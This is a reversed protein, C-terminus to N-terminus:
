KRELIKDVVEKKYMTLLEEEVQRDEMIVDNYEIKIM